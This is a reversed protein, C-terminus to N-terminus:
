STELIAKSKGRFTLRLFSVHLEPYRLLCSYLPECRKAANVRTHPERTRRPFTLLTLLRVGSGTLRGLFKPFILLQAAHPCPVGLDLSSDNEQCPITTDATQSSSQLTRWRTYRVSDPNFILSPREPLLAVQTLPLM